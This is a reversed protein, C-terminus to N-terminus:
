NNSYALAYHTKDPTDRWAWVKLINNCDAPMNPYEARLDETVSPHQDEVTVWHRHTFIFEESYEGASFPPDVIKILKVPRKTLRQNIEEINM